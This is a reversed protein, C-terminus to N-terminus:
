NKASKLTTGTAGAVISGVLKVEVAVDAPNLDADLLRYRIPVLGSGHERLGVSVIEVTPPENNDFPFSGAGTAIESGPFDELFIRVAVEGLFGPRSLESHGLEFVRFGFTVREGIPSSPFNRPDIATLPIEFFEGEVEGIVKQLYARDAEGDM